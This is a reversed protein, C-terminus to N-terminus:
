IIINDELMSFIAKKLEENRIKKLCEPCIKLNLLGKIMDARNECFDMICGRTEGHYGLETFYVLLQSILIYVVGKEFTRGAQKTFSNLSDTSIFMFRNDISSPGSFYNSLLKDYWKFALPYRTLCAVLDTNLHERQEYFNHPILEVYLNPNGRIHRVVNQTLEINVPIFHFFDQISNLKQIIKPLNILGVDIDVIGCKYEFVSIEKKIDLIKTHKNISELVKKFGNEWDPFFDVYHIERLAEVPLKCDDLRIPILFIQDEPFTELIDLAINMEKHIFGSRNSSQKSLLLIFFNSERIAKRIAPEWKMGPLLNEKDLWPEIGHEKLQAYL